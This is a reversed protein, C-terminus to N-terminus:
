QPGELIVKGKLYPEPANTTLKTKPRNVHYRFSKWELVRENWGWKNRQIQKCTVSVFNWDSHFEREPIVNWEPTMYVSFSSRESIFGCVTTQPSHRVRITKLIASMKRAGDKNKIQRSFRARSFTKPQAPRNQWTFATRDENQFSIWELIFSM